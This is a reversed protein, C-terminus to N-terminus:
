AIAGSNPAPQWAQWYSKIKLSANQAPNGFLGNIPNRHSAEARPALNILCKAFYLFYCNPHLYLYTCVSMINASPGQGRGQVSLSSVASLPITPTLSLSNTM